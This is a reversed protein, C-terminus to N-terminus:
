EESQGARGRARDEKGVRREESRGHATNGVLLHSAAALTEVFLDSQHSAGVTAADPSLTVNSDYGGALSFVAGTRRSLPAGGLRELATAALTRLNLDSTTRHAQECHEIAQTPR